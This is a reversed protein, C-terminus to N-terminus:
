VINESYNCLLEEGDIENKIVDSMLLLMEKENEPLEDPSCNELQTVEIHEHGYYMKGKYEYVTNVCTAIDTFDGCGRHRDVEKDVDVARIVGYYVDSEESGCIAKVLNGAGFPHPISIFFYSITYEPEEINLPYYVDIIELNSNFKYDYNKTRKEDKIDYFGKRKISVDINGIDWNNQVYEEKSKVIYEYASDYDKFFEYGNIDKEGGHNEVYEAIYIVDDDKEYRKNLASEYARVQNAVIGKFSIKDKPKITNVYDKGRFDLDCESLIGVNKSQFEEESYKNLIFKLGEIKQSLTAKKSLEILVAQEIPLFETKTNYERVDKSDIFDLINFM